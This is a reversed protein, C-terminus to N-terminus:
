HCVPVLLGEATTNTDHCSGERVVATFSARKIQAAPAVPAARRLPLLQFVVDDLDRSHQAFLRVGHNRFGARDVEFNDLRHDVLDCDQLALVLSSDYPLLQMM